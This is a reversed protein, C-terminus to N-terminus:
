CDFFYTIHADNPIKNDMIYDYVLRSPEYEDIYSIFVQDDNDKEKYRSLYEPQYNKNQIAWAEWTSVWGAKLSPNYKQFWAKFDSVLIHYFGYYGDETKYRKVFEDPAEPSIGYETYLHDYEVSEGRGQLNDFWEYHRGDYINEGIVKKDKVIFMHIDRGM